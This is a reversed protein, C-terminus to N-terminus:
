EDVRASTQAEDAKKFVGASDQVFELPEPPTRIDGLAQAILEADDTAVVLKTSLSVEKPKHGARDLIDFASTQQVKESDANKMLHVVKDIAEKSHSVIVDKVERSMDRLLEGRTQSIVEQARSDTLLVSVRSPSYDLVTCIENNTLGAIHLAIVQEQKPKYQKPQWPKEPEGTPRRYGNEAVLSTVREMLEQERGNENHLICGREQTQCFSCVM